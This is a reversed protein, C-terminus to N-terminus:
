SPHCSFSLWYFLEFVSDVSFKQRQNESHLFTVVCFHKLCLWVYINFLFRLHTIPFVSGVSFNPFSFWHLIWTELKRLTSPFPIDANAMIFCNFFPQWKMLISWLSFNWIVLGGLFNPDGTKQTDVSISYWCWGNHFLQFIAAMETIDIMCFFKLNSVVGFNPDRTKHTDISISYWHWGNLFLQFIAAMENNDIMHFFKLNSVAWFNPDGTKKESHQHFHFIM